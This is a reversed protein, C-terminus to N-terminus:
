YACGYMWNFSISSVIVKSVFLMIKLGINSLFSCSYLEEEEKKCTMNMFKNVIGRQVLYLVYCLFFEM